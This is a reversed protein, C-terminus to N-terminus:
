VRKRGSYALASALALVGVGVSALVALREKGPGKIDERVSNQTIASNLRTGTSVINAATNITDLVPQLKPFVTSVAATGFRGARTGLFGVPGGTESVMVGRSEALARAVSPLTNTGLSGLAAIEGASNKEHRARDLRQLAMIAEMVRDSAADVLQGIRKHTDNREDMSRALAGDVADLANGLAILAYGGWRVANRSHSDPMRVEAALLAAGVGTLGLGALTVYNPDLNPAYEHIKHAVGEAAPGVFKRLPSNRPNEKM